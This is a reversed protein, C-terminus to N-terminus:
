APEAVEWEVFFQQTGAMRDKDSSTDPNPQPQRRRVEESGTPDALLESQM